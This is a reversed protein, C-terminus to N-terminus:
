HATLQRKLSFVFPYTRTNVKKKLEKWKRKRNVERASCYPAPDTGPITGMVRCDM